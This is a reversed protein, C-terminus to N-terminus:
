SGRHQMSVIGAQLGGLCPVTPVLLVCSSLAPMSPSGIQLLPPSSNTPDGSELVWGLARRIPSGSLLSLPLPLPGLSGHWWERKGQLDRREGGGVQGGEDGSRAVGYCVQGRRRHRLEM